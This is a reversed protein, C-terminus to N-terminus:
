QQSVSAPVSNKAIRGNILNGALHGLTVLGAAIILVVQSPAAAHWQTNLLWDVLPVISVASITAAGTNVSSSQNM